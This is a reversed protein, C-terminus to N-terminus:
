SFVRKKMSNEASLISIANTYTHQLSSIASFIAEKRTCLKPSRSLLSKDTSM